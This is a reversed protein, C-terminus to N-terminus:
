RRRCSGTSRRRPRPRCAARRRAAGRAPRRHGSQEGFTEVLRELAAVLGFDDLAKPRLEVALRRVDQLTAVVLERLERAAGRAGRRGRGGRRVEARAPDLDAGPRDRRAARARPPAARAGAGEVVRRLADRAVRQPSISPSLPARRSARPSGCTTTAHLAPRPRAQRARRARRDRPRAVLLPVFLGTRARLAAGLEQDVEPDDLLSDVRESRGGSSCAAPRRARRPFTRRHLETPEEGAAAEIRLTAAPAAARDAVLRADILERLREAISARAPPRPRTEGVLANGVENLSELQRSWRTASEYLRANEIAVAAQAALLTVLEEDEETFDEGGEKETLYLNGYAVGRLLIPVGLFSRMPPHNPPFGVSRPDDRSTTRAAAAARRPDARRPHRPRAAARRDRAHAEDDIGTTLFRELAAGSRDIVGLAAYRAGTVVAAAEVIRQLVAELSLESSVAIGTQLLVGPRPSM